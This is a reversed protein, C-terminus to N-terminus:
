NLNVWNPLTGQNLFTDGSCTLPDADREAKSIILDSKSGVGRERYKQFVADTMVNFYSLLRRGERVAIDSYTQSGVHTGIQQGAAVSDGVKVSSFVNVHFIIFTRSGAEIGVQTGAWEATLYIIKGNVPSFIKVPYSGPVFYHKMSRCSEYDDSYDHGVGSRFRSIKSIRGLEIYDATATGSSSPPTVGGGDDEPQVPSKCGPAYVFLSLAFVAAAFPWPHRTM